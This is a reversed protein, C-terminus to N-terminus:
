YAYTKTHKRSNCSKCLPQINEIWNTGNKSLPIIHDVTLLKEVGCNACCYNYKRKLENWEGFSFIGEANRKRARYQGNLYLVYGYNTIRWAKSYEQVHLKNRKRWQKADELRKKHFKIRAKLSHQRIREPNRKVWERHYSERKKVLERKHLQFYKKNYEKRKNKHKKLWTASYGKYYEKRCELSCFIKNQNLTNDIIIGGCVKCKRTIVKKM